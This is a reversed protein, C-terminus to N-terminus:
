MRYINRLINKHGIFEKIEKLIHEVGFSDFCIVNFGNVCMAIWHTLNSKFQDLNIVYAGEKIKLLINISYVGNFKSYNQYYKQTEFNTLFHPTM